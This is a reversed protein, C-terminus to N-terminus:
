EACFAPAYRREALDDLHRDSRYLESPSQLQIPDRGNQVLSGRPAVVLDGSHPTRYNFGGLFIASISIPLQELGEV